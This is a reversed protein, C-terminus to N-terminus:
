CIINSDSICIFEVRHFRFCFNLFMHSSMNLSVNYRFRFYFGLDFLPASLQLLRILHIGNGDAESFRRLTKKNKHDAKIQKEFAYHCRDTLMGIMTKWARAAGPYSRVFDNNATVQSFAIGFNDWMDVSLGFQAFKKAHMQGLFM